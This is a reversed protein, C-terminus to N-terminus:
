KSAAMKYREYAQWLGWSVPAISFLTFFVIETILSYFNISFLAQLVLIFIPAFIWVWTIALSKNVYFYHGCWLTLLILIFFGDLHVGGKFLPVASIVMALALMGAVALTLQALGLSGEFIMNVAVAISVLTMVMLRTSTRLQAKELAAWTFMAGLGVLSIIQLSQNMSWLSTVFTRLTIFALLVVILYRKLWSGQSNANLSGSMGLLVVFFSSVVLSQVNGVFPWKPKGVVQLFTLLFGLVAGFSFLFHKFRNPMVQAVLFISASLLLPSLIVKLTSQFFAENM